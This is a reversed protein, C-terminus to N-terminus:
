LFKSDNLWDLPSEASKNYPTVRGTVIGNLWTRLQNGNRHSPPRCFLDLLYERGQFAEMVKKAAIHRDHPTEAVALARLTAHRLDSAQRARVPPLDLPQLSCAAQLLHDLPDEMSVVAHGAISPEFRELGLGVALAAPLNGSTGAPIVFLIALEHQDADPSLKEVWDWLADHARLLDTASNNIGAVLFVRELAGLVQSYAGAENPEPGALLKNSEVHAAELIQALASAYAGEGVVLIAPPEELWSNPMTPNSIM